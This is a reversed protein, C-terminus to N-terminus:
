QEPSAFSLETVFSNECLAWLSQAAVSLGHRTSRILGIQKILSDDQLPICVLGKAEMQEKCLAPVVSVGLGHVILQGVSGLQGTEAIINLSGAASGSKETWMRVASGRNMAVFPYTVLTSWEVAPYDSIAHQKHCVAVFQDSFLPLFSLGDKLDPEFTFGLEAKGTVVSDIVDEMVVDLIRLRINPYSHHYQRLISPLRSEAFSPMSAITLKGQRMAFLSQMDEFTEDWEDVLRRATPLLVEGEPTLHVRRTSRSFLAGGLQEEMKKIATSLAPQTLHLKEAAEAFTSSEAVRIFALMNRYSVSM